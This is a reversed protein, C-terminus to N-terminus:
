ASAPGTPSDPNDYDSPDPKKGSPAFLHAVPEVLRQLKNEDEMSLEDLVDLQVAPIPADELYPLKWATVMCAMILDALDVSAALVHGEKPDGLQRLVRKRDKAKLENADRLEVWGGSPLDHRPM